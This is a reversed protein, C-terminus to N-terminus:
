RSTRNNLNRKSRILRDIAREFPKLADAVVLADERQDLPRGVVLLRTLLTTALVTLPDLVDPFHKGQLGAAELALLFLRPRGCTRWLRDSDLRTGEGPDGRLQKWRTIEEGNAIITQRHLGIRGGGFM